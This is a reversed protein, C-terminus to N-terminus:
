KMLPTFDVQGTREVSFRIAGHEGTNLMQTTHVQFIHKSEESLKNAGCSVAVFTPNAWALFREPASNASGHHAAMLLDCQIPPQEFLQEMGEKELDGPLLLRKGLCQVLLVISASNDNSHHADSNPSLVEFKTKRGIAFHNGQTVHRIKVASQNLQALLTKVSNSDHRGMSPSILLEQVDFRRAIGAAASFHDIDAHSIILADIRSIGKHWLVSSITNLAYRPSSTSGCDYLVNKGDPLEMLVSTGHGVDIFTVALGRTLSVHQEIHRPLAWGAVLWLVAFLCLWRTSVRTRPYIGLVIWGIYAIVVSWLPPGPTWFHGGSYQSAAVVVSELAALSITGSAAALRALSPIIDAFIFMAMGSYLALSIPFMLIPNVILGIPALVHFHYAVLPASIFWILVSIVFAARFARALDVASKVYFPRTALIVQNLPDTNTPFIWRKGFNIAAVALFSLQPGIAFLDMPNILLVVFASLALIHFAQGVRGLLRALCFLVIFISARVVPPRFEVLWAYLVVFIITLLLCNRRSLVGFKLLLYVLGALIGIHLGSIALLHITGTQLFQERRQADIQERNGLLIASTLSAQQPALYRWIQDNLSARLHSVWNPGRSRLRTVAQQDFCYLSTLIRQRRYHDSFDYQGPNSPKDIRVMKGFFQIQDGAVLKPIDPLQLYARGSVSQWRREIRIQDCEVLVRYRRGPESHAGAFRRGVPAAIQRPERILTARLAAPAPHLPAQFGIEDAPYWNWYVHHHFGGLGAFGALLLLSIPFTGSARTTPLTQSALLLKRHGLLPLGISLALLSAYPLWHFNSYRDLAIGLAFAMVILLGPQYTLRANQGSEPLMTKM